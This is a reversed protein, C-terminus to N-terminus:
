MDGFGDIFHYVFTQLSMQEIWGEIDSTPVGWEDDGYQRSLQIMDDTDNILKVHIITLGPEHSHQIQYHFKEKTILQYCCEIFESPTNLLYGGDGHHTGAITSYIKYYWWGHRPVNCTFCFSKLDNYFQEWNMYSPKNTVNLQKMCLMRYKQLNQLKSIINHLRTNILSLWIFSRATCFEAIIGMCGDGIDMLSLPTKTDSLTQMQQDTNQHYSDVFTITDDLLSLLGSM